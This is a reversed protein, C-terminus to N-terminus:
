SRSHVQSYAAMAERFRSQRSYADGLVRYLQNLTGTDNTQEILDQVDDVVQPLLENAKILHKYQSVSLDTRGTQLAMRAVSLCLPYNTSNSKLEQLYEDLTADGSPLFAAITDEWSRKVPAVVDRRPAPRAANTRLPAPRGILRSQDNAARTTPAPRAAPAPTPLAPPPTTAAVPAAPAPERAPPAVAQDWISDMADLPEPVFDADDASVPAPEEQQRPATRKAAEVKEGPMDFNFFDDDEAPREAPRSSAAATAGAAGAAALGGLATLQDGNLGFTNAPATPEPAPPAPPPTDSDMLGLSAIEDDSLGLEALSFPKLEPEADAPTAPAASAPTSEALGLSAIEDDSLGLESLSFPTLEPEDNTPAPPPTAEPAASEEMDIVEDGDRIQIGARHLTWGIEEIREAETEPNDVLGIIDTLDVYGQQRGLNMLDDLTAVAGAAGAGGQAAAELTGLDLGELEEATIGLERNAGTDGTGFPDGTELDDFSFPELDAGLDLSGTGRIPPEPFAIGQDTTGLDDLSFPTVGPEVNAASSSSEPQSSESLGLSAIEDDSLGLEALSFPTLEPEDSTAPAAPTPTPDAAAPQNTAELGLSAIEDDSLGLESLSFPTLEPEDSTAPAAPAPTPDAAAPQNTA